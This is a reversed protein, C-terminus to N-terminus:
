FEIERTIKVQGTMVLYVKQPVENQNAIVEGTEMKHLEFQM